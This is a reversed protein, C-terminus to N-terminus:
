GRLSRRATWTILATYGAYSLLSWHAISLGLFEWEKSSCFGTALFLRPWREGLWEVGQEILNPPGFGCDLAPDAMWQLWSQYGATAIGGLAAMLAIWLGWPRLPRASAALLAGAGIALYLLRQFICLPCPNLRLAEGLLVGAVVMACAVLGLALCAARDSIHGSPPTLPM